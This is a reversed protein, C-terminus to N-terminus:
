GDFREHHQLIVEAVPWPFDIEKLMDYTAAPHPKIMAMENETLKGPKSLIEAPVIIKGIDHLLGAVRIGEIQFSSLQM